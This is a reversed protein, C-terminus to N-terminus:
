APDLDARRSRRRCSTRWSPWESEVVARMEDSIHNIGEIELMYKHLRELDAPMMVKDGVIRPQYARRKKTMGAPLEECIGGDRGRARRCLRPNAHSRKQNRMSGKQNRM